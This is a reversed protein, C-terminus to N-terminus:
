SYLEWLVLRVAKDKLALATDNNMPLVRVTFYTSGLGEDADSVECIIAETDLLKVPKDRGADIYERQRLAAEVDETDMAADVPTSTGNGVDVHGTTAMEQIVRGVRNVSSETLTGYRAIATRVIAPHLDSDYTAIAAAAKTSIKNGTPLLTELVPAAHMLEYLHKRSYTFEGQLFATWNKYGLVQWGQREKLELLHRGMDAAANNIATVHAQAEERTLPPMIIVNAQNTGNPQAVITM